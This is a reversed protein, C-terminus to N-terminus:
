VSMEGCFIYLHGIFVYFLPEVDSIILSIFILVVILYWRMDAMIVMMLDDVFLLHQLPQLSFPFRRCWQHSHLSICGNHLVTHLNRLFSPFFDLMHGLLEVVPCIAYSFWLGFICIYICVCVYVYIYRLTWQLM